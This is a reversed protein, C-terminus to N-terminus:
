SCYRMYAKSESTKQVVLVKEGSSDLIGEHQLHFLEAVRHLLLRQFSSLGKFQLVKKSSDKMFKRLEQEFRLVAIRNESNELASLIASDGLVSVSLATELAPPEPVLPTPLQEPRKLILPVKAGRM